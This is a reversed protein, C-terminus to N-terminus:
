VVIKQFISSQESKELDRFYRSVRVHPTLNTYSIPFKLLTIPFKLALSFIIWSLQKKRLLFFVDRLYLISPKPPRTTLMSAEPIRPRPNLGPWLRQVKRADSFDEAHRGESPFHFFRYWTGAKRCTFSCLVEMFKSHALLIGQITGVKALLPREHRHHTAGRSIFSPFENPCPYLRGVPQLASFVGCAVKLKLKKKFVFYSLRIHFVSIIGQVSYCKIV